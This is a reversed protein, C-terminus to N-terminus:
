EHNGGNSICVYQLEHNGGNCIFVSGVRKKSTTKSVSGLSEGPNYAHTRTYQAGIGAVGVQGSYHTHSSTYLRRPPEIFQRSPLIIQAVGSNDSLSVTLTYRADPAELPPLYRSYVGDHRTIDSDPLTFSLIILSPSQVHSSSSSSPQIIVHSLLSSLTVLM